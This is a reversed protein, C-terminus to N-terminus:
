SAKRQQENNLFNAKSDMRCQPQMKKSPLARFVPTIAAISVVEIRSRGATRALRASSQNM